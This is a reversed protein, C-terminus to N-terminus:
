ITASLDTYITGLLSQFTSFDPRGGIIGDANYDLYALYGAQGISTGLASQMLTLDPRGSVQGDGNTDGFLRFFTNTINDAMTHNYAHVATSVVTIDYDGDAISGGVVGAGSFTVVWTLGGDPSTWSLTPLTGVTGPTGGDVSVGQHLAITFAGADLTVAENFTFVVNDVMSRQTGTLSVTQGDITVNAGDVTVSTLTPLPNVVQSVQVSQSSAYTADGEYVATLTTTGVSLMSTSFCATGTTGLYETDLLTSGNYFDVEGTPTAGSGTVTATFTVLDGFVSPNASSALSTTSTLGTNIVETLSSSTSTQFVGDGNYVATLTHSGLALTSTTLIATGTGDLSATGVPSGGDFFTVTGTPIGGNSEVYATLSVLAGAAASNLSSSLITTTSATITQSLIGSTSSSYNTDGSYVATLPYLGGDLNSTTFTATGSNLTETDLPVGNDWFTVTGTPTNGSGTVIATFTVANGFASPNASSTLTTTSTLGTNIGQTLTGSTSSQFAGDGNYVATLTHSGLALTSNPFVATGTGDLSATGVPSGGDFFTVTGTPIGGSSSVFATLDVQAGAAAPNLSSSLTTTTSATITQALSASASASYNADGSYVAMLTYIGGNLNSALFTAIGSSNLSASNVPVGAEYFTVSGTPTAGSGTITATFTVTNGFASPNASSTLATASSLATNIVETVANSTSTQFAGDGNYVATLTHSGVTLGNTTLVATGTGDLSVTGLSNTGNLFTVTGTPIGAGNSGVFATLSVQAGVAASNLSSSLTTTTSATITQSLFQSSSDGYTGNGGYFATLSYIGGNLTSTTFTAIGSGNLTATDLPVGLDYFTVTGTPMNGSGAVTATFTVTTGYPVSSAASSTLTTTSSLGTNVVQNLSGSTSPQFTGDGEYSGTISTSGVPLQDTPFLATGTQDLFASGLYDNNADYFDVWGTPTGGSSAVTATINVLAGAAAPNLSSSLTTTTSDLNASVTVSTSQVSQPSSSGTPYYDAEITDTGVPLTSTSLTATASNGCASNLNVTALLTKNQGNVLQYFYVTGTPTWTTNGPVFDIPNGNGELTTVTATFTDTDGFTIANVWSQVTLNQSPPSLGPLM